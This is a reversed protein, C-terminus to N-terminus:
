CFSKMVKRLRTSFSVKNKQKCLLAHCKSDGSHTNIFTGRRRASPVGGKTHLDRQSAMAREHINKKEM